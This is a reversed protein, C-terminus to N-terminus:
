YLSDLLRVRHCLRLADAGGKLGEVSHVMALQIDEPMSTAHWLLVDRTDLGEPEIFM